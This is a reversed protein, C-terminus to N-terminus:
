GSFNSYFVSTIELPEIKLLLKEWFYIFIGKEIANEDFIKFIQEFNGWGITNKTWVRKKIKKSFVRSYNLKAIKM